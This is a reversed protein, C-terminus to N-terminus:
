GSQKTKKRGNIHAKGQNYLNKSVNQITDKAEALHQRKQYIFIVGILGPVIANMFFILLSVGVSLYAPVGYQSLFFVALNERVGLGSVSIPLLGAGWVFIVALLTQSFAISHVDNLLVYYQLALCGFIALSYILTQFFIRRYVVPKEQFRAMFRGGWLYPLFFYAVIGALALTWLAPQYDTFVVPLAILVLILKIYTQFFKEIGFAVVKGSKKGPLLFVKTIEAHGGPVMLRFAFGAFFSPILDRNSFDSSHNEVLYKWRFFQAALNAFAMIVLVLLTRVEMASLANIMQRRDVRWLIWGLLLLGTLYKLVFALRQKIIQKM